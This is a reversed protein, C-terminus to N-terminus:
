HNHAPSELGLQLLRLQELIKETPLAPIDNAEDGLYCGTCAFDCRPQIGVTAGCGTAKQGLGQTPTKVAPALSDWRESLIRRKEPTVPDVFLEWARKFSPPQGLM